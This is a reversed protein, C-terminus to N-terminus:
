VQEMGLLKRISVREYKRRKFVAVTEFGKELLLMYAARLGLAIQAPNHADTGVTVLEGGLARYRELLYGYEPAMQARKASNVEIAQSRAIITRLMSDISAEYRAIDVEVGDRRVMYRLPYPVHALSDFRGWAVLRELQEFYDDLYKHCIAEDRYDIYYYDRYDLRESANHISGLVFDLEREADLVREATEFGYPANGLELGYNLTLRGAAAERAAAHAARVASWDYDPVYAGDGDIVDYHDTFCLGSLGARVAAKAMEARPVASDFSMSSHVHANFM